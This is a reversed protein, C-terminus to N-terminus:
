LRNQWEVIEDCFCNISSRQPSALKEALEPEDKAKGTYVAEFQGSQFGVQKVTSPYSLHHLVILFLLLLEMSM